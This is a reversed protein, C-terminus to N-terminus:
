SSTAGNNKPPSGLRISVRSASLVDHLNKAAENLMNEVDNSSQIRTTIQNVLTERRALRQSENVLRANEVAMGFRESVERMLDFDEPTFDKGDEIEFEMAGVVHGRVRLPLAITQIDDARYEVLQDTELADRLSPTMETDPSFTASEFDVTASLSRRSATLYDGWATGTLRENLRKVQRLTNETELTLRENEARQEEAQQYQGVNDIALALSDALAQFTAMSNFDEFANPDRTQVDLAGLIRPGIRLPVVMQLVADPLRERGPNDQPGEIVSGGTEIVRSVVSNSGISISINQAQTQLDTSAVLRAQTGSENVLFVQTQDIFSFAGRMQRVIERLLTQQDVRNAVQYAIQRLVSATISQDQAVETAAEARVVQSFRSFLYVLIAAGFLALLVSLATPQGLTSAFASDVSARLVLPLASAALVVLLGDRDTLLGAMLLLITANMGASAPADSATISLLVGAIYWITLPVWRAVTLLGVRVTVFGIVTLILLAYFVVSPRRLPDSLAVDLMTANLVGSGAVAEWDQVFLAYILYFVAMIGTVIYVVLAQYQEVRRTYVSTDFITNLIRNITM